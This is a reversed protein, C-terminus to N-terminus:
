KSPEAPVDAEKPEPTAPPDCWKKAAYREAADRELEVTDGAKKRGYRISPHRWTVKVLDKPNPDATAAAKKASAKKPTAKTKKKTKPAM